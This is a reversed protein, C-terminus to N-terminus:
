TVDHNPTKQNKLLLVQRIFLGIYFTNRQILSMPPPTCSVSYLYLDNIELEYDLVSLYM